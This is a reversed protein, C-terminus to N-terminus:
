KSAVQLLLNNLANPDVPKTLHYDFGADSARRRDSEQGWGTLAVLTVNSGQQRRLARAVDYGNTGPMGIDLVAVRPRFAEGVRLASTGDYAVQVDHGFLGLIRHLSDAADRNDDAVLVRLGEEPAAAYVPPKQETHAAGAPALPLRLVFESGQGPGASRVAISGHHLAVIGQVLTLGVGLRGEPETASGLSSAARFLGRAVEPALGIGSDEVSIAVQSSEVAASLSISGRGHIHKAANKLLTSVAQALRAPDGDLAVRESPLLVSLHHGAANIQARCTELAMDIVVELPVSEKRLLFTGRSIREIDLLDDILRSLQDIQREIVGQSWAVEPDQSGKRGLIAVANRIPALPNRLEHALAALFEDKRKDAEKLAEEVQRRDHVDIAIAVWGDPEGAADFIPTYASRIWRKRLGPFDVLREYEVPQGTLVREIYPRIERMSEAGLLQEMPQGVITEAPRGLWRAYHPNVWLFRLDKSCRLAAAPMAEAVLRLERESVRSGAPWANKENRM